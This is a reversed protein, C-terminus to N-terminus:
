LVIFLKSYKLQFLKGGFYCQKATTQLAIQIEMQLSGLFVKVLCSQPFKLVVKFYLIILMLLMLQQTTEM